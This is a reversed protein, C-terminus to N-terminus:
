SEGLNPTEMVTIANVPCVSVCFGCGTCQGGDIRPPAPGGLVPTFRIASPECHDECARCEVERTALCTEDIVAKISWPQSGDGIDAAVIAGTPCAPRCDGCFTCGGHTFDVEPYRGAGAVIIGEPCAQICRECPECADRFRGEPLSWPPRVAPREGALRATLVARRDLGRSMRGEQSMALGRLGPVTGYAAFDPM